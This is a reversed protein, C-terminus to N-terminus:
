LGSCGALFRRHLDHQVLRSHWSAPCCSDMSQNGWGRLKIFLELVSTGAPTPAEGSSLKQDHLYLIGMGMKWLLGYSLGKTLEDKVDGCTYM